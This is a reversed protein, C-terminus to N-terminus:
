PAEIYSVHGYCDKQISNLTVVWFPLTSRSNATPSEGSNVAVFSNIEYDLDNQHSQANDEAILINAPVIHEAQAQEDADEYMHKTEVCRPLDWDFSESCHTFVRDGM